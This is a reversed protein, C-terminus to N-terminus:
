ALKKLVRCLDKPLPVSKRKKKNIYVHVTQAQGVLTRKQNRLLYSITFSTQSMRSLSMKITVTDGIFLPHKYDAQAHVIPLAYTPHHLLPKM